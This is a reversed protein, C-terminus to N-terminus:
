ASASAAFSAVRSTTALRYVAPADEDDAAPESPAYTGGPVVKSACNSGPGATADRAMKMAKATTLLRTAAATSRLCSLSRASSSRRRIRRFDKSPLASKSSTWSANSRNSRALYSSAAALSISDDIPPTSALTRIGWGSPFGMECTSASSASTASLIALIRSRLRAASPSPPSAPASESSASLSSAPIHSLGSGFFLSFLSFVSPGGAHIFKVTPTTSVM